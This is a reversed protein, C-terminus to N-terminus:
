FLIEYKTITSTTVTYATENTINDYLNNLNETIM